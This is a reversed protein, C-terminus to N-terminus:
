RGHFEDAIRETIERISERRMRRTKAGDGFEQAERYVAECVMARIEPEMEDLHERVRHINAGNAALAEKAKKRVERCDDAVAQKYIAAYLNKYNEDTKETSKM